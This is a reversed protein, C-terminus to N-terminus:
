NDTSRHWVHTCEHLVRRQQTVDHIAVDLVVREEGFGRQEFAAAGDVRARDLTVTTRHPRPLDLM